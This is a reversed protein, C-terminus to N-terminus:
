RHTLVVSRLQHGFVLQAPQFGTADPTNRKLLDQLFAENSLDGSPACKLVLDKVAKM